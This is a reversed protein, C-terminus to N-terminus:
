AVEEPPVWTSAGNKPVPTRRSFEPTRRMWQRWAAEWNSHPDKFEHDRFSETTLDVDVGPIKEAAWARMRETVRFDEPVIRTRVKATVRPAAGTIETKNKNSDTDTNANANSLREAATIPPSRRDSATEALREANRGTEVERASKAALRARERYVGHNIVRWGWDRAQDVLELRAGDSAKSRSFADPQCFRQMCAVVEELILGTVSAIYQPTVDVVGHKDTMSLVIPWLGIDPWKGCLTGTTLSGFLPTYGM